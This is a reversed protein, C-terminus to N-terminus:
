WLPKSQGSHDWTGGIGPERQQTTLYRAGGCRVAVLLGGKSLRVGAVVHQSAAYRDGGTATRTAGVRGRPGEGARRPLRQEQLRHGVGPGIDGVRGTVHEMGGGVRDPGTRDV